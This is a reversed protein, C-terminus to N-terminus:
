GTVTGTRYAIYRKLTTIHMPYFREEEAALKQRLESLSVWHMNRTENTQLALRGRVTCIFIQVMIPYEGKLNQASSFPTYNRVRYQDYDCITSEEEGSIAVVELGTEEYVERRLCTFVDEFARVKGAPIELLGNEYSAGAKCREQLLIYRVGDIVQELIGGIGPIAFTEM